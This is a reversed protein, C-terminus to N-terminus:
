EGDTAVERVYIVEHGEGYRALLPLIKLSDCLIYRKRIEAEVAKTVRFNGKCLMLVNEICAEVNDAQIDFGYVSLAATEYDSQKVCRRFKRRLIELPFQGEGCAPDLFTAEPSYCDYDTTNGQLQDCMKEVMWQPTFVEGYKRARKKSKTGGDILSYPKAESIKGGM